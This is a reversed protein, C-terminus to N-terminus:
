LINMDYLEPNINSFGDSFIRCDKNGIKKILKYYALDKNYTMRMSIESNVNNIEKTISEVSFNPEKVADVLVKM